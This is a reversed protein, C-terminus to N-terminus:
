SRATSPRPSRRPRRGRGRGGGATRTPRSSASPATRASSSSRSSSRSRWRWAAAAKSQKGISALALGKLVYARLHGGCAAIAGDCQKVTARYLGLEMKCSAANTLHTAMDGAASTKALAEWREAAEAFNGARFLALAEMTALYLFTIELNFLIRFHQVELVKAGACPRPQRLPGPLGTARGLPGPSWGM